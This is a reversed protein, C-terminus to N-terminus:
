SATVAFGRTTTVCPVTPDQPSERHDEWHRAACVPHSVPTGDLPLADCGPGAQQREQSRRKEGEGSGGEDRGAVLQEEM